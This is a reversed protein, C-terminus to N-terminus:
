VHARGIQQLAPDELLQDYDLLIRKEGKTGALMSLVQGAWLYSGVEPPFGNRRCVSRVVSRPDRVVLVYEVEGAVRSFVKKWLELLQNFRPDKFGYVTSAAIKGALLEAAKRDYGKELLFSLDEHTLPLLSWWGRGVAELMEENLGYIDLDEWFGKDNEGAVPPMLRNGLEVGLVKLGRAVASTGSRHMGLVVIIKRNATM